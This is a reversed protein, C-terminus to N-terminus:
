YEVHECHVLGIIYQIHYQFITSLYPNIHVYSMYAWWLACGNDGQVRGVPPRMEAVAKRDEEGYCMRM